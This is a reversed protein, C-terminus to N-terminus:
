QLPLAAAISSAPLCDDADLIVDALGIRIEPVGSVPKYRTGLHRM